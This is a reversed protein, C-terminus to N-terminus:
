PNATGGKSPDVLALPGEGQPALEVFEWHGFKGACLLWQHFFELYGALLGGGQLPDAVLAVWHINKEGLYQCSAGYIKQGGSGFIGM